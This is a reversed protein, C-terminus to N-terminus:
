KPEEFKAGAGNALYVVARGIEVDSYDGGGQAPMAGKGKLASALLAEYGNKIRPEWSAADGTKPAGAVGAAHCATCVSKYVVEGARAPPPNAADRLVFGAVPQIRQQIADPTMADAGTGTRTSSAVFGALLIILVIPVLLALLVVIILQRPTKIFSEHAEGGHGAAHTIPPNHAAM